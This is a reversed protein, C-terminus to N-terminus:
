PPPRRQAGVGRHKERERGAAFSAANVENVGSLCDRRTLHVFRAQPARGRARRHEAGGLRAGAQGSGGKSFRRHRMCCSAGGRCRALRQGGPAIQPAALFAPGPDARAARKTIQSTATTQASHACRVCRTKRRSQLGLVAACDSRLASRWPMLGRRASGAAGRLLLSLVSFWRRGGPPSPWCGVPLRGGRGRARHRTPM